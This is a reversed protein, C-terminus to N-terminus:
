AKRIFRAKAILGDQVEYVAIIELSDIGKRGSVKEHDIVINGMVMRNVIDAHLQPSNIFVDNYINHLQDAGTAYPSAESFNYLEVKPHHCAVFTQIDRSNYADVQKQVIEEPTM